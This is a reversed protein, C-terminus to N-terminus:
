WTDVVLERSVIYSIDMICICTYIYVVINGSIVIDDVFFYWRLECCM